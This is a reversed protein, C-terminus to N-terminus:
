FLVDWIYDLVQSVRILLVNRQFVRQFALSLYIRLHFVNQTAPEYLNM